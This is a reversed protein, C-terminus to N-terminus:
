FISLSNIRIKRKTLTKRQARRASQPLSNGLSKKPVYQSLFGTELFKNYRCAPKIAVRQQGTETLHYNRKCYIEKVFGHHQITGAGISYSPPSQGHDCICIVEIRENKEIIKYRTRM